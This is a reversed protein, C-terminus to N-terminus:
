PRVYGWIRKAGPRPAKRDHRWGRKVFYEAIRMEDRRELKDKAMGIAHRLIGACTVFDIARNEPEDLWADIIEHWPDQEARDGQIAEAQM